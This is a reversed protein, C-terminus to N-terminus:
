NKKLEWYFDSSQKPGHHIASDGEIGTRYSGDKMRYPTTNYKVVHSYSDSEGTPESENSLVPKNSEPKEKDGVTNIIGGDENYLDDVPESMIEVKSDENLSSNEEAKGDKSYYSVGDKKTFTGDGQLFKDVNELLKDTRSKEKVSNPGGPKREPIKVANIDGKPAGGNSAANGKPPDDIEMGNPDILMVPNNACYAYPSLSPYKYSMPDVSIFISADSDYYRAGFYTYDTETDHEKATFKYRSDFSSNRQSVILSGFPSYQIHQDAGGSSNSVFSASGLHDPHYFYRFKELADSSDQAPHLSPGIVWSGTYGTCEVSRTIMKKLDSKVSSHTGDIFDLPTSCPMTPAYHFGGGIKSCVREGEIYYHKTYEEETMVLYPGTYLTKEFNVNSYVAKANMKMQLEKGTFKWAREGGADYLYASLQSLEGQDWVAELRNEEDWCLNREFSTGRYILNGNKDWKYSDTGVDTVNHPRDNYVYDHDYSITAESGNILTKADYRKNTINSSASYTMRLGYTKSSLGYPDFSGSFDDLRYLDDYSYNYSYKGGINGSVYSASNVLKTINGADGYSYDIDQMLSGGNEYTKLNTMRLNNVDYKYQSHTGNGYYISERMGYKDYFVSDIYVFTQSGKAGSMYILKGGKDYRYNVSEGDPYFIKNTRNWSDYEWTTEFTYADGDPVVFTHKNQILNGMIDYKFDQIGSADQQKILRGCADDNGLTDYEYFVDMEANQPYNIESLRNDSYVYQISQSASSLNETQVTLVNGVLDYTYSTQNADPHKRNLLRGLKDYQYTTENNEPDTSKVLEGLASYEFSTITTLPATISTHLGRADAFSFTSITNPDIIETKFCTLGFNDNGFSYKYEISTNDPYYQNTSRDLIDYITRTPNLPTSATYNIINSASYAQTSPQSISDARAYSDYSVKGSVVVIDSGAVTATKKSQVTRGFGDSFNVTIFENNTNLPDYHRTKAWLYPHSNDLVDWYECKITFPENDLIEKPGIITDVKGDFYYTYRMEAGSPATIKTPLGLKYDYEHSSTHGWYNTISIPYTYVVSDYVYNYELREQNVNEPYEVKSVNGYQNYTIDTTAVSTTNLFNRIQDVSGNSNYHGRSERLLNNSYDYVNLGSVMTLLHNSQNYSYSIDARINDQNTATDNYNIYQKINGYAGHYYNKKTHIQSTTQGEYFYKDEQHLAPYYNMSCIDPDSLVDGSSIDKYEWTYFTEVYKKNSANINVDYKKLGKFYLNNTHFVEITSRYVNNDTFNDYQRTIVTDFGMSEREARHHKGGLYEFKYFSLDQGDGSFGDSTKLSTMVWKSSPNDVDPYTRDYDIFYVAKSPTTVTELINYKIPIGYKVKISGGDVYAYDIFGDGNFDAIRAKESSLNFSYDTYASFVIKGTIFPPPLPIPAGYTGSLNASLNISGSKGVPESFTTNINQLYFGSGTNILAMLNNNDIFCIDILGDNNVDVQTFNSKNWNYSGGIGASFSFQDYNLVSGINLSVTTSRNKNLTDLDWEVSPAFKYGLNIQVSDNKSDIRDPLGDGNIDFYSYSVYSSGINAGVGSSGDINNLVGKDAAGTSTNKYLTGKVGFALGNAKGKGINTFIEDFVITDQSIGGQATTYQIKESGHIDPYRDGNLDTFDVLGRTTTRTHTYNLSAPGAGAGASFSHNKQKSIKTPVRSGSIIANNFSPVFPNDELEFIDDDELLDYLETMNLGSGMTEKDIYAGQFAGLWREEKRDARMMSFSLVSDSGNVNYDNFTSVITEYDYIEDIDDFPFDELITSDSASYDLYLKSEDVLYCGGSTNDDMYSFQGWGRNLNGFKQLSDEYVTHIGTKYAITDGVILAGITSVNNCTDIDQIINRDKVYYDFFVTDDSALTFTLMNSTSDYHEALISITQKDLLNRKSKATFIIEGDNYNTVNLTPYVNYTGSSLSVPRSLSLAKPLLNMYLSPYYEISNQTTFTDIVISDYQIVADFDIDSWNVNTSSLLKFLISDGQNVTRNFLFSRSFSNADAYTTDILATSNHKVIFNLSDSQAPSILDGVISLTGTFPAVFYQNDHIVVDKAYNYVYILEENSDTYDISLNEGIIQSLSTQITVDWEFDDAGTNENSHLRFYIVEGSKVEIEATISDVHTTTDEETISNCLQFDFFVGEKQITYYVVDNLIENSNIRKITSIINVKGEVQAIWMKVPDRRNYSIIEDDDDTTFDSPEGDYIICDCSDSDFYQQFENPNIERFVPKGTSDPRNFYINGDCFYDVFGDANVDTFYRSNVQKNFSGTYSASASVTLMEVLIEGGVNTTRNWSRGLNPLNNEGISDPSSSFILENNVNLVGKYFDFHHPRKVIKDTLGDGNLDILQSKEQNVGLSVGGNAGLTISKSWFKLDNAGVCVSGGIYGSSSRSKGMTQGVSDIVIDGYITDNEELISTTILATSNFIVGEEVFYDFCHTTAGSYQILNDCDITGAYAVKTSDTVDTISQLLNNNYADETYNLFYARVFQNDYRVYIDKLLRDTTELFGSRASTFYDDRAETEFDITYLGDTIDFGTYTIKKLYIQRGGTIPSSDSLITDYEYKVYNGYLDRVETLAWSAINDTEPNSLVCGANVSTEANYKGYIYKTGNKDIVEWWYEDTSDGHRIIRHFAGEARYSYYTESSTGRSRSFDKHIPQLRTTDTSTIELEVIQEGNVLYEESEYDDYFRPVGWRSDISISPVSLGWGVGLWGNGGDSNYSIALQPQMGQRGAPIQLPFSMNASGSNNASPAGIINLGALPDAFKIDKMSTPTFAATQPLEPAKLIANIFDTFHNTKSVIENTEYDLNDFELMVWKGCTEDYYFTRIDEAGYGNPIKTTDYKISIEIDNEFRSGHPLCRYGSNEATVNIMAMDLLPMDINRLGTVSIGMQETIFGAKAKLTLADLQLEFNNQPFATKELFSIDANSTNIYDYSTNNSLIIKDIIEEGNEFVAKLEIEKKDINENLFVIGEFVGKHQNIEQGNAYLNVDTDIGKIYGNVYAYQGFYNKSASKNIILSSASSNKVTRIQINKVKYKINLDEPISFRIINEGIKLQKPSIIESQHSWSNNTKIILGGTAIFDNISKCVSNSGDLGYLDYELYFQNENSLSNDIFIQVYNDKPNDINQSQSDAGIECVINNTPYYIDENNFSVSNTETTLEGISISELPINEIPINNNQLVITNSSLTKEEYNDFDTSFYLLLSVVTTIAFIPFIYTKM